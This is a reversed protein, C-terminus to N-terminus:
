SWSSPCFSISASQKAHFNNAPPDWIPKPNRKGSAACILRWLGWLGCMPFPSLLTWWANSRPLSLPIICIFVEARLALCVARAWYVRIELMGIVGKKGVETLPRNFQSKEWSGWNEGVGNRMARRAQWLRGWSSLFEALSTVNLLSLEM